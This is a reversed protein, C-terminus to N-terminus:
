SCAGTRQPKPPCSGPSALHPRPFRLIPAPPMEGNERAVARDYGALPKLRIAQWRPLTKRKDLFQVVSRHPQNEAWAFLDTAIDTM